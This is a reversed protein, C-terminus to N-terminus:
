LGLGKPLPKLCGVSVAYDHWEAIRSASLTRYPSFVVMGRIRKPYLPLSLHAAYSWAMSWLHYFAFLTPHMHLGFYSDYSYIPKHTRDFEVFWGTYGQMSLSQFRSAAAQSPKGLYELRKGNPLRIQWAIRVPQMGPFPAPTNDEFGVRKNPQTFRKFQEPRFRQM